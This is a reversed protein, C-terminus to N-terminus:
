IGDALMRQEIEIRTPKQSNTIEIGDLFGLEAMRQLMKLSVMLLSFLSSLHLTDM